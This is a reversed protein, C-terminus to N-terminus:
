CSQRNRLQVAVAEVVVDAPVQQALVRLQPHPLVPARALVRAM